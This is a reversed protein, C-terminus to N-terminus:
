FCDRKEIAWKIGYQLISHIHVIGKLNKNRNKKNLNKESTVLLSTIKKKNMIALAKSASSNESIFVPNSNMIKKIDQSKLNYRLSRRADGDTLIGEVVNKKMVIALGLKYKTIRNSAEKINSNIKIKPIKAGRVMIDKVLLLTQGINGGPHFVKFREKSFKIKNMLAVALCDGLLLTISTSSTPVMGTPDAEKVIPILIKVDSAKILISDQKSAVGIIKINFRNAYKLINTLESTNGSYSFVILLDKKDIQGLDGHNAESPSLFFSSIGVSSLTASVKRAILGSKGVGACIVKGKCNYILEVAKVFSSNFVKNIKKLESIQKAASNKALKIYNKKNM